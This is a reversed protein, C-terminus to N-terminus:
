RSVLRFGATFWRVRFRDTPFGDIRREYGAFVEIAAARGNLRLGGEIRGGCLRDRDAIAANVGIIAGTGTTMLELDRAIPHRLTVKGRTMWVYDVFAQQMARTLEFDAEIGRYQHEVRGGIENWSISAPNDRDNLHRSVHRILGSIETAGIRGSSSADFVYYGQNLDYPRREHGMIAEYAGVFRVRGTGYDVIDLDFRVDGVWSFRVDSSILKAFSFKFETRTLVDRGPSATASQGWASPASVTGVVILPAALAAM